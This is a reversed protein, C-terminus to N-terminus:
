AEIRAVLEQVAQVQRAIPEPVPRAGSLVEAIYHATTAADIREPLGPQEALSGTQAEVLRVPEGRVYGNIQRLRRTDAVGEGETGRLLLANSGMLGIIEEMSQAYEAHTYSGIVLTRAQSATGHLPHMLKVVSHASNRLGMRRRADLVGALGPSLTATDLWFPDDAQRALLPRLVQLVEPVTVRGDETPHGHMLVRLGKRALLWALLPTLLPLKRAGNYSPIVVTFRGDDTLQPPRLDAHTADLFGAMEERTEGKVRMALLFAGMAMEDAQGQLLLQWAHRAEDRTM